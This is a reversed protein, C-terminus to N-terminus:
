DDSDQDGWNEHLANHLLGQATWEPLRTGSADGDHRTLWRQGEMDVWEAVVVYNVLLREDTTEPILAESLADALSDM